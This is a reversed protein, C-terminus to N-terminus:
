EDEDDYNPPICDTLTGDDLKKHVYGDDWMGEIWVTLEEYNGTYFYEGDVSTLDTAKVKYARYPKTLGRGYLYDIVFLDGSANALVFITEPIPLETM